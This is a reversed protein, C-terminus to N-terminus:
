VYKSEGSNMNLFNQISDKKKTLNKYGFFDKNLMAELILTPLLEIEQEM